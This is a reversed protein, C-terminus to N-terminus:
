GPIRNAIQKLYIDIVDDGLQEYHKLRRLSKVYITEDGLRLTDEDRTGTATVTNLHATAQMNHPFTLTGYGSRTKISHARQSTSEISTINNDLWENSEQYEHQRRASTCIDGEQSDKGQPDIIATAEDVPKQKHQNHAQGSLTTNADDTM